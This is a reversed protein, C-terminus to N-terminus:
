LKELLKKAIEIDIKEPDKTIDYSFLNFISVANNGVRLELGNPFYYAEDGVGPIPKANKKDLFNFAELGEVLTVHVGMAEKYEYFCQNQKPLDVTLKANIIPVGLIEGVEEKKLIDCVKKMQTTKQGSSATKSSVKVSFTTKKSSFNKNKPSSFKFYFLAGGVILVFFGILLLKNPKIMIFFNILKYCNKTIIFFLLIFFM